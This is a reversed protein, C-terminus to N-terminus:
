DSHPKLQKAGPFIVQGDPTLMASDPPTVDVIRTQLAELAKELLEENSLHERGRVEIPNGNPGSIEIRASDQWKLMARTMWNFTPASWDKFKGTMGALGLQEYFLQRYSESLRAAEAFDPYMEIFDCIQQPSLNILAGFSRLSFGKKSHEILMQCYEPKYQAPPAGDAYEYKELHEVMKKHYALSEQFHEEANPNRRIWTNKGAKKKSGKNNQTPAAGSESSPQDM